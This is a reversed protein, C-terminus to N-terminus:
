TSWGCDPCRKGLEGMASYEYADPHECRRELQKWEVQLAEEEERLEQLREQINGHAAIIEEQTMKSKMGMGRPYSTAIRQYERDFAERSITSWDFNVKSREIELWNSQYPEWRVGEHGDVLEKITQDGEGPQIDVVVIYPVNM